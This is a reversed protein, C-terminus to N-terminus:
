ETSHIEENHGLSAMFRRGDQDVKTSIIAQLMNLALGNGSGTDALQWHPGWTREETINSNVNLVKRELFHM